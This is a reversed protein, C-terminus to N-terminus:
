ISVTDPTYTSYGAKTASINYTGSVINEFSYFGFINTIATDSWTANELSVTASEIAQHFPFSTVVGGIANGDRYPEEPLLYLDIEYAMAALLTMSFNNHTYGTKSVNIWTLKDVNLSEIEYYGSEDTTDTFETSEQTFTVSVDDLTINNQVDYAIGSIFMREGVTMEDQSLLVEGGGAKPTRWLYVTYEGTRWGYKLNFDYEGSDENYGITWTELLTNADDRVEVFYDYTSFASDTLHYSVTVEDGILHSPADFIVWMGVGSLPLMDIGNGGAIEYPTDGIGDHDADDGTYDSYSNGGIFQGGIINIDESLITYWTNLGEDYGNAGNTFKNNYIKNYDSGSAIGVGYDNNYEITNNAIINFDSSSILEIGNNANYAITCDDITIYDANQLEIGTDYNYTCDFDSITAQQCNYLIAGDQNYSSTCNTILLNPQSGAVYLGANFNTTLLNNILTVNSSGSDIAIGYSGDKITFGEITVNDNSSLSITPSGWEAAEIITSASGNESTLTIDDSPSFVVNGTYTGDRVLINVNGGYACVREVAETITDYHDPVIVPSICVGDGLVVDVHRSVAIRHLDLSCTYGMTRRNSEYKIETSPQTATFTYSVPTPPSTSHYGTIYVGDVYFYTFGVPGHSPDGATSEYTFHIIYDDGVDTSISKLITGTHTGTNAGGTSVTFLTRGESQLRSGASTLTPTSIFDWGLHTVSSDSVSFDWFDEFDSVYAFGTEVDDFSSTSTVGGVNHRIYYTENCWSYAPVSPATFWVGTVYEGDTFYSWHSLNTGTSDVVYLNADEISPTIGSLDVYVAENSFGSGGTNNIKIEREFMESASAPQSLAILLVVLIMVMKIKM